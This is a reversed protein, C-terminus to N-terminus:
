TDLVMRIKAAVLFRSAFGLLSLARIAKSYEVSFMSWILMIQDNSMRPTAKGLGRFVLELLTAIQDRRLSACAYSM